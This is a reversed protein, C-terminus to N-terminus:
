SKSTTTGNAPPAAAPDGPPPLGLRRALNGAQCASSAMKNAVAQRLDGVHAFAWVTAASDFSNLGLAEARAAVLNCLALAAEAANTNADRYRALAATIGADGRLSEGLLVNEALRFGMVTAPALGRFARCAQREDPSLEPDDAAPRITCPDVSPATSPARMPLTSFVSVVPESARIEWSGVQHNRGATWVDNGMPFWAQVTALLSGESSNSSATPWQSPSFDTLSRESLKEGFLNAISQDVFNTTDRLRDANLATVLSGSPGALRAGRQIISLLNGTIDPNVTASASLSFEIGVTTGPDMRVYPTLFRRQGLESTFNEGDTRNSTQTTAALTYSASVNPNTITIKAQLLRARSRGLLYRSLWSRRERLYDREGDSAVNNSEVRAVWFRVYGGVPSDSTGAAGERRVTLLPLLDVPEPPSVQTRARRQAAYARDPASGGSNSEQAMAPMAVSALLLGSLSMMGIRM